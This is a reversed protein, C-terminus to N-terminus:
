ITLTVKILNAENLHKLLTKEYFDYRKFLEEHVHM